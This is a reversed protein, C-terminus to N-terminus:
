IFTLYACIIDCIIIMVIRMQQTRSICIVKRRMMKKVQALFVPAM